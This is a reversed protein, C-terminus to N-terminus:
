TLEGCLSHYHISRKTSSFVIAYKCQNTCKVANFKNSQNIYVDFHNQKQKKNQKNATKGKIHRGCTM